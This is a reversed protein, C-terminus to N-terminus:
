NGHMKRYFKVHLKWHWTPTPAELVTPAGEDTNYYIDLGFMIGLAAIWGIIECIGATRALLKVVRESFRSNDIFYQEDFM